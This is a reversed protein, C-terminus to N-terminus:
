MWGHLIVIDIQTGTTVVETQPLADLGRQQALGQRLVVVRGLVYVAPVVSGTAIKHRGNLQGAIHHVTPSSSLHRSDVAISALNTKVYTM